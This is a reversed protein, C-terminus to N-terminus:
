CILVRYIRHASQRGSSPQWLMGQAQAERVIERGTGGTAGLVLVKM